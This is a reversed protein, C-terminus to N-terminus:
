EADALYDAAWGAWKQELLPTVFIIKRSPMNKTGSQHFEAYKINTGFTASMRGIENPKGRLSSLSRFLAGSRFMPTTGPFHKSKWSAYEADLPAWGGSPLGSASINQKWLQELDKRIKKFVPKFDRARDLTEDLMRTGEGGTFKAVIVYRM